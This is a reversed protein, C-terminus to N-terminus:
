WRRYAALRDLNSKTQYGNPLLQLLSTQECNGQDCSSIITIDQQDIQYFQLLYQLCAGCPLLIEKDVLVMARFQYHGHVVAHDIASREACLGLGSIVSETNCGAFLDGSASMVCAGIAHGSRIVFANKQAQRALSIMADVLEQAIM